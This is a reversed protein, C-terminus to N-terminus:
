ELLAFRVMEEFSIEIALLNFLLLLAVFPLHHEKQFNTVLSSPM